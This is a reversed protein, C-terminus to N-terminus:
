NIGKLVRQCLCCSSGKSSDVAGGAKLVYLSLLNNQGM